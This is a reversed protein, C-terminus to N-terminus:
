SLLGVIKLFYLLCEKIEDVIGSVKGSLWYWAFWVLALCGSTEKSCRMICSKWLDLVWDDTTPLKVEDSKGTVCFPIKERENKPIFDIIYKKFEEIKSSIAAARGVDDKPLSENQLFKNAQTLVVVSREWMKQHGHLASFMDKTLQDLRGDLKSCILVLDFEENVIEELTNLFSGGNAIGFGLTDTVKLKVKLFEGDYEKVGQTVAAGTHGVRSVTKGLLKNILTSKGVGTLGIVLISVPKKRKQLEELQERVKPLFSELSYLNENQGPSSEDVEPPSAM